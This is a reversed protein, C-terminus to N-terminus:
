QKVNRLYWYTNNDKIGYNANLRSSVLDSLHVIYAEPTQPEVCSGWELKGHHALICHGVNVITLPDVNFKKATNIFLIYSMTIHGIQNGMDTYTGDYDMEEIKMFDHFFCAAIVTDLNVNYINSMYFATKMVEYTHQALGGLYAHHHSRAAPKELFANFMDGNVMYMITEKLKSDQVLAVMQLIKEKIEPICKPLELEPEELSRQWGGISSVQLNGGYMYIYGHILIVDGVSIDTIVNGKDDYMYLDEASGSKPCPPPVSTFTRGDGSQLRLRIFKKGEKSVFQEIGMLRFKLEEIVHTDKGSTHVDGVQKKFM